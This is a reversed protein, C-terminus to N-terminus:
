SRCVSYFEQRTEPEEQFVGTLVSTIVSSNEQRVGRSTMCGHVGQVYVAVGKPKLRDMLRDAVERTYEEQMIPRRALIDSVRAFKSLGLVKGDPIYGISVNFHCPLLHHPCLAWATINRATLLEDYGNDFVKFIKALEEEIKEPSWCFDEYMQQIRRPTDQFQKVGEWGEYKTELSTVLNRTAATLQHKALDPREM